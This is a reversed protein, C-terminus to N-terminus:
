ATLKSVAKNGLVCNILQLIAIAFSLLLGLGYGAERNDVYYWTYVLTGVVWVAATLDLAVRVILRRRSIAINPRLLLLLILILCLGTCLTAAIGMGLM